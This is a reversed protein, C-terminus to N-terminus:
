KSYFSTHNDALICPTSLKFFIYIQTINAFLSGTPSCPRTRTRRAANWCSVALRCDGTPKSFIMSFSFKVKFLSIQLTAILHLAHKLNIGYRLNKCLESSWALRSHYSAADIQLYNGIPM